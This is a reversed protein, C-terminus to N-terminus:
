RSQEGGGSLEGVREARERLLDAFALAEDASLVVYGTVPGSDGDDAPPYLSDRRLTVDIRVFHGAVNGYDVNADLREDLDSVDILNGSTTHM